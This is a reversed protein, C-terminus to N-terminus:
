DVYDRDLYEYENPNMNAKAMAKQLTYGFVCTEERTTKNMLYFCYM